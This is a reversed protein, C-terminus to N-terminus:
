MNKNKHEQIALRLDQSIKKIAQLDKRIRTGATKNNKQEFKVRDTKISAVLEDLEAFMKEFHNDM